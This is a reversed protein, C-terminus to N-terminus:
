YAYTFILLSQPKDEKVVPNKQASEKWNDESIDWVWCSGYINDKKWQVVHAFM